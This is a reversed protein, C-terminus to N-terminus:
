KINTRKTVEQPGETPLYGNFVGQSKIPHIAWAGGRRAEDISGLKDRSPAIYRHQDAPFPRVRFGLHHAVSPLWLELYARHTEPVQSVRDFATRRWFSAAGWMSLVTDKNPRVSLQKWSEFLGPISAHFLYHPHNTGDLSKLGYGLIDAYEARAQQYCLRLYDTRLPVFDYEAFFIWDYAKDRIAESCRRFVETYSQCERRFESVRLRQDDIYVKDNWRIREFESLPGGYAILIGAIESLSQWLEVQDAVVRANRHTLLIVLPQKM